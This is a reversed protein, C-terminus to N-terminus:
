SFFICACINFNWRIDIFEKNNQSFLFFFFIVWLDIMKFISYLCQLMIIHLVFFQNINTSKIFVLTENRKIRFVLDYLTAFWVNGQMIWLISCLKTWSKILSPRASGYTSSPRYLSHSLHEPLLPARGRSPSRDPARPEGSFSCWYYMWACSHLHIHCFHVRFM